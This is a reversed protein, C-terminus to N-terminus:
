LFLLNKQCKKRKSKKLENCLASIGEQNFPNNTFITEGRGFSEEIKKKLVESRKDAMIVGIYIKEKIIVNQSLLDIFTNLYKMKNNLDNLKDEFTEKYEKKMEKVMDKLKDPDCILINYWYSHYKLYEYLKEDQKIIFIVENIM